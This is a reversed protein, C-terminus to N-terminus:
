KLRNELRWLAIKKAAAKIDAFKMGGKDSVGFETDIWYDLEKQSVSGLMEGKLRGMPIKMAYASRLADPVEAPITTNGSGGNGNAPAAQAVLQPAGCTFGAEKALECVGVIVGLFYQADTLGKGDAEAYDLEAVYMFPVGKASILPIHIYDM